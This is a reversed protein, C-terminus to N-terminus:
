GSWFRIAVYGGLLGGGLYWRWNELKRIRGNQKGLRKDMKDVKEIMVDQREDIRILLDHDTKQAAM